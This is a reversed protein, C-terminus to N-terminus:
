FQSIKLLWFKTQSKSRFYNLLIHREIMKFANYGIIKATRKTGRRTYRICLLKLIIPYKKLRGHRLNIDM